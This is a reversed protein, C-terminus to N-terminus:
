TPEWSVSDAYVEKVTSTRMGNLLEVHVTVLQRGSTADWAIESVTGEWVEGARIGSDVAVTECEALVSFRVQDGVKITGM